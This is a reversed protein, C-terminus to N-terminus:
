AKAADKQVKAALRDFHWDLAPRLLSHLRGLAAMEWGPTVTFRGAEAGEVIKKAVGDAPWMKATGTMAKTEKPKTLNEQHLQPTDTDPPYAITVGIGDRKLEGRLSEALGRLAFKTPGILQRVRSQIADHKLM